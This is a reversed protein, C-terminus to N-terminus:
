KLTSAKNVISHLETRYSNPDYSNASSIFNLVQQYTLSGKYKSDRLLMGFGAISATIRMNESSETFNIGEDFIGLELPISNNEGINKYRFNITFTPNQRFLPNAKPKIEYIATVNQGVSIEGADKKDDEFDENNLTRNEYGILRYEDVIEPNFEVQVKVDKAISFYKNYEHVFIKEAQKFNDLYEYTGNGKNSLKEMAADNYNGAGVGIITLFIGLDRKSEILKILEDQSQVGVNFDGDTALIIRNNGGDIFNNQAFEYAKIIGGGGNTSGGTSLKNIADKITNKKDGSVSPLVVQANGAYTVIGIKDKASLQDVLLHFGKKLLDLRDEGSMSGSVDVLLVLNSAPLDEKPIPKGKIGIRILKHGPTWPCSSVEGNLSIPHGSNIFPYDLPFYNILEETRVAGKPPIQGENIFRRVMAYSAGDADISFTSIPEESVKVFPNEDYDEFNDSGFNGSFDEYGSSFDSTCSSLCLFISLFFYCLKNKM